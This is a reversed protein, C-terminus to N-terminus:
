IFTETFPTPRGNGAEASNAFFRPEQAPGVGGGHMGVDSTVAALVGQATFHRKRGQVKFDFAKWWRRDYEEAGARGRYLKGM